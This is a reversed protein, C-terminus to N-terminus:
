DWVTALKLGNKLAERAYETPLMDPTKAASVDLNAWDWLEFDAFEDTPSLVPHAESTGKTQSVEVLPEWRARTAVYDSDIKKGFTEIVPFM